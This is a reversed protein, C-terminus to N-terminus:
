CPRFGLVISIKEGRFDIVNNDQDVVTLKIQYINDTNVPYYCLTIPREIIKEGGEGNLPFEHLTNDNQKLNDVNCKILNCKVKITNVTFIQVPLDSSHTLLPAFINESFGLTRGMTGETNFDIHFDSKIEVQFTNKNLKMTTGSELFAPEDELRKILDKLEYTGTPITIVHQAPTITDVLIFLNNEDTINPINNYTVFSKLCMEYPGNLKIGDYYELHLVSSTGSVSIQFAM